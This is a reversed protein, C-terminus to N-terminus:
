RKLTSYNNNGPGRVPIGVVDRLLEYDSSYPMPSKRYGVLNGDEIVLKNYVGNKGKWEKNFPKYRCKGSPKKYKNGTKPNTGRSWDEEYPLIVVKGGKEWVSYAEFQGYYYHDYYQPEVHTVYKYHNLCENKTNSAEQQQRRYQSELDGGSSESGGGCSILFGLSAIVLPAFVKRYM